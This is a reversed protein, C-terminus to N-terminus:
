RLKLSEKDIQDFMSEDCERLFRGFSLFGGLIVLYLVIGIIIEM